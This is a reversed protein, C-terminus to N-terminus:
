RKKGFLSWVNKVLRKRPSLSADGEEEDIGHLSSAKDDQHPSQERQPQQLALMYTGQEEGQQPLLSDEM